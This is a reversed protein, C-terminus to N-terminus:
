VFNNRWEKAFIGRKYYFLRECKEHVTKGFYLLPRGYEDLKPMGKLILHLITGIMWDPHPPCGPVNIITKDKIIESASVAGTPNEGTVM